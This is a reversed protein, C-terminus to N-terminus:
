AAPGTAEAENQPTPTDPRDSHNRGALKTWETAILLYGARISPSANEAALQAEHAFELCQQVSPLGECEKVTFASTM